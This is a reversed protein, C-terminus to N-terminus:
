CSPTEEILLSPVRAAKLVLRSLRLEFQERERAPLSAWPLTVELVAEGGSEPPTSMPRGDGAPDSSSASTSLPVSATDRAASRDLDRPRRHPRRQATEPRAM